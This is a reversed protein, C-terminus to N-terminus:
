IFDDSVVTRNPPLVKSFNHYHIGKKIKIRYTLGNNLVEPMGDALSPIVEYPRKLYHYQYLTELSQALTFLADDNFAIAPDFSKILNDVSLNIEKDEKFHIQKKILAGFLVLVIVGLFIFRKM